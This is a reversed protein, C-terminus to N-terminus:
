EKTTGRSAVRMAEATPGDPTVKPKHKRAARMLAINAWTNFSRKDAKAAKHFLNNDKVPIRLSQVVIGTKKKSRQGGLKTTRKKTAM